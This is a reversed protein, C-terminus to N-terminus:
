KKLIYGIWATILILLISWVAFGIKGGFKKITASAASRDLSDIKKQLSQKVAHDNSMMDCFINSFLKDLRKSDQTAAEITRALQEPNSLKQELVAVREGLSSIGKDHEQLLKDPDFDKKLAELEDM